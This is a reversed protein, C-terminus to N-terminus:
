KAGGEPNTSVRTWNLRIFEDGVLGHRQHNPSQTRWVNDYPFSSRELVERLNGKTDIWMGTLDERPGSV